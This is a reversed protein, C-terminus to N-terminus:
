GIFTRGGEQRRQHVLLCFLGMRRQASYQLSLISERLAMIWVAELSIWGKGFTRSTRHSRAPMRSEQADPRSEWSGLMPKMPGLLRRGNTWSVM